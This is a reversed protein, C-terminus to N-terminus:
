IFLCIVVQYGNDDAVTIFLIRKTDDGHVIVIDVVIMLLVIRIIKIILTVM